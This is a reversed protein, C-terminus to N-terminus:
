RIRIAASSASTRTPSQSFRSTLGSGPTTTPPRGDRLLQSPRRAPPIVFVSRATEAARGDPGRGRAAAQRPRARLHRVDDLVPHATSGVPRDQPGGGPSSAHRPCIAGPDARAESLARDAASPDFTALRLPGLREALLEWTSIKNFWKFLLVRFVVEHPDQDGAYIVERILYQSVRDAARYANTFRWSTLVPDATWPPPDGAVRRLYVAHREAAFRWYVDLLPSPAPAIMARGTKWVAPTYRLGPAWRGTTRRRASSGTSNTAIRGLAGPPAVTSTRPRHRHTQRRPSPSCEGAVTATRAVYLPQRGHPSSEAAVTIGVQNARHQRHEEVSSIDRQHSGAQELLAGLATPRLPRRRPPAARPDLLQGTAVRLLRRLAGAAPVRATAPAVLVRDVHLAAVAGAVPESAVRVLVLPSAPRVRM